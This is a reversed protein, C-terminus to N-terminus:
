SIFLCIRINSFKTGCFIRGETYDDHWVKGQRIFRDSCLLLIPCHIPIQKQTLEQQAAAIAGCYHGSFYMKDMPKKIEDFDWEGGHSVHLSRASWGPDVYVILGFFIIIKILISTLFSFEMPPFYPSSLILADIESRRVGTRAYLTATLGGTSHGLVVIKRKRNNAQQIIHEIALTIEEHYERLDCCYSIYRDHEPSIISRGSKRLDLAYFDYGHDLFHQCLHDSLPFYNFEFM